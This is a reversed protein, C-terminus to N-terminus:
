PRDSCPITQGQPLTLFSVAEYTALLERDFARNKCHCLELHKNFFALPILTGQVEKELMADVAESLTDKTPATSTNPVPYVLLTLNMKLKSFAVNAKHM